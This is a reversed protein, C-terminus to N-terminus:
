FNVEGDVSFLLWGPSSREVVSVPFVFTLGDSYLFSCPLVFIGM